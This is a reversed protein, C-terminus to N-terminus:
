GNPQGIQRAALARDAELSLYLLLALSTIAIIKQSVVQITLGRLTGLDPGWGLMVVYGVLLATLLAWTVVMRQPLFTSSRAALVMFLSAVPFVRFAFFTFTVHLDLLRNEPTLAVGIFSLCVVLGVLGAAIAFRRQRPSESYLRVFAVLAGGFGLVLLVLSTVFLAAGLVNPQGGHAVTMGLDSLFNQFPSYGPITRDLLTGGPYRAMAALALLTAAFLSWRARTFATARVLPSRM